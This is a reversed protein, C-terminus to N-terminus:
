KPKLENFNDLLYTLIIPNKAHKTIIHLFIYALFQDDQKTYTYQKYNLYDKIFDIDEICALYELFKSDNTEFGITYVSTRTTVDNIMTKMLGRCYTWERWWPLLGHKIPDELYQELKNKAKETCNIDGFFCAWRAAEQRLCTILEDSDDIEEYKIKILIKNLMVGIRKMYTWNSEELMAAPFTNFMYELAKFMPYWAIYDEEKDLYSTINWFINANLQGAIVIQQLNFIIWGEEKHSYTYNLDIAKCLPYHTFSTFNPYTQTTFTVPMCYIRLIDSNQISIHMKSWSENYSRIVKILPCHEELTWYKMTELTINSIYSINQKKADAVVEKFFTMFNQRDFQTRNVYSRISNWFIVETVAYQMMRLIFPARISERIKLLSDDQSTSNWMDYDDLYFSTHQNQVVFLNIIQNDPYIENVAYTALLTTLAKNFWALKFPNNLNYFWQQTVKHGVLQAVEIKHAVPYLNKDYVIDMENYFVLGLVTIDNDPFNPIAVHTVNSINNSHQKWKNKYFLTINEAVNKAFEMHFVTENRCWMQIHKTNNDVRSLYNSVIITALYPSMAPTTDFHTWLMNYKNEETNRLPMNSLATCQNCGISINFTAELLLNQQSWCSSLQRDGIIHFHTAAVLAMKEKMDFIRFVKDTYGNYEINLIYNGPLLEDKFSVDIIDEEIDYTPKYVTYKANEHYKELNEILVINNFYINKLYVNNFLINQTKNLISISINYEGYFINEEICSIFKIDYHNPKIYKSPDYCLSSENHIFATEAIFMLGSSLLLKLFIMM